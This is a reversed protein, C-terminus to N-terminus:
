CLLPPPARRKGAPTANRPQGHQNHQRRPDGGGPAPAGGEVRDRDAGCDGSIGGGRQYKEAHMDDGAQQEHRAGHQRDGGPQQEADPPADDPRCDAANEAGDDPKAEGAVDIGTQDVQVRLARKRGIRSRTWRPPQRATASNRSIGTM